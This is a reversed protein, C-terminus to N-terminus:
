ELIIDNRAAIRWGIGYQKNLYTIVTRNYDAICEYTEPTCGFDFYEIGYKREFNNDSKTNAIPAISGILLLKPTGNAIDKLAKNRNFECDTSLTFHLQISQGPKLNITTDRESYGFCIVNLKYNGPPLENTIYNGLSDTNAWYHKGNGAIFTLFGEELPKNSYGSFVTGYVETRQQEDQGFSNLSFLLLSLNILKKM